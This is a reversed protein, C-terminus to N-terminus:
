TPLGKSHEPATNGDALDGDGAETETAEFDAADSEETSVADAETEPVAEAPGASQQVDTERGPHRKASVVFYAAAAVFLIISTWVNLRVGFIHNAQDVRLYEIWSRGATYAM